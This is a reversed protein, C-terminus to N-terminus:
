PGIDSLFGHLEGKIIPIDYQIIFSDLSRTDEFKKELSRMAKIVNFSDGTEEKMVKLEKLLNPCGKESSTINPDMLMGELDKFSIDYKEDEDHSTEELTALDHQQVANRVVQAESPPADAEHDSLQQKSVSDDNTKEYIKKYIYDKFEEFENIKEDLKKFLPVLGKNLEENEEKEIIKNLEYKIKEIESPIYFLIDKVEEFSYDSICEELKGYADITFKQDLSKLILEINNNVESNIKNENENKNLGIILHEFVSDAAQVQRKLNELRMYNHENCLIERLKSIKKVGHAKNIMRIMPIAINFIRLNKDTKEQTKQGSSQLNKIISINRETRDGYGFYITYWDGITPKKYKIKIEQVSQNKVCELNKIDKQFEINFGLKKVLLKFTTFSDPIKLKVRSNMIKNFSDENEQEDHYPKETIAQNDILQKYSPPQKRFYNVCKHDLTIIEQSSGGKTLKNTYKRKINRKRKTKKNINTYKKLTKKKKNKKNNQTKKKIIKCKKKKSIKSKM